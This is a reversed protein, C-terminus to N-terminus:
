YGRLGTIGSEPVTEFEESHRKDMEEGMKLQVCHLGYYCLEVYKLQMRKDVDGVPRHTRQPISSTKAGPYYSFMQLVCVPSTSCIPFHLLIIDNYSM